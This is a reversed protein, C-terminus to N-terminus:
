RSLFRVNPQKGSSPVTIRASGAIFFSWEDSTLHWHVERMAGPKITVLAASFKAAIPFTSPDIIKVSGGEVEYPKQNSFHYTYSQEKPVIGASGTINQESIDKPAATGNFIWLQDQPINDLASVDTKLNKALVAQPNRLFLESALFTDEESFNGDDDTGQDFAQVSHPVGSPFFWVDGANLDDVM